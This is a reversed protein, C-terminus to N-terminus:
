LRSSEEADLAARAQVLRAEAGQLFSEASGRAEEGSRAARVAGLVFSGQETLRAREKEFHAQAGEHAARLELWAEFAAELTEFTDLRALVGHQSPVLAGPGDKTRRGSM